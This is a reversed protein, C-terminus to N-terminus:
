PPLRRSASASRSRSPSRDAALWGLAKRTSRELTRAWFANQVRGTKRRSYLSIVAYGVRDALRPPMLLRSVLAPPIMTVAIAPRFTRPAPHLAARPAKPPYCGGGLIGLAATGAAFLRGPGPNKPRYRVTM